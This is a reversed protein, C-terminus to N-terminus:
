IFYDSYDSYHWDVFLHLYQISVGVYKYINAANSDDAINADNLIIVFISTGILAM